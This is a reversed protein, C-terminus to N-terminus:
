LCGSSEGGGYAAMRGTRAIDHNKLGKKDVAQQAIVDGVGFLVGTTVAQTFLPRKALKAQYRPLCTLIQLKLDTSHWRVMQVDQRFSTYTNFSHPIADFHSAYLM